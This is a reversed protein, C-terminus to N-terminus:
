ESVKQKEETLCKQLVKLEERMLSAAMSHKDRDEKLLSQYKLIDEEKQKLNEQVTKLSCKLTLIEENKNVDVNESSDTTIEKKSQLELIHREYFTIQSQKDGLQKRFLSLNMENETIKSKLQQIIQEKAAVENSVSILEARINSFSDDEKIDEEQMLETQTDKNKSIKIMTPEPKVAKEPQQVSTPPLEPDYDFAFNKHLAFLEEELKIIQEDQIKVRDFVHQLQTEKLTCQRRYKIENFQLHKREQHGTMIEQVSEVDAINLKLIEEFNVLEKEYQEKLVSSENAIIQANYLNLFAEHKDSIARKINNIFKEESPLPICGLYQLKSKM